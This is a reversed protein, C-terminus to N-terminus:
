GCPSAERRGGGGGGRGFAQQSTAWATVWRAGTAEQASGGSPAGFGVVAATMALLAVTRSVRTTRTM